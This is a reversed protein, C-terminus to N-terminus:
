VAVTESTAPVITNAARSVPRGAIDSVWRALDQRYGPALEIALRFLGTLLAAFVITGAVLSVTATYIKRNRVQM